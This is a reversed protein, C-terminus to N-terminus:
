PHQLFFFAHRPGRERQRPNPACVIPGAAALDRGDLNHCSSVAQAARDCHATVVRALLTPRVNHEAPKLPPECRPRLSHARCRQAHGLPQQAANTPERLLPMPMRREELQCVGSQHTMARQPRCCATPHLWDNHKAAAVRRATPARKRDPRSDAGLGFSLTMWHHQAPPHALFTTPCGRLCWLKTPPGLGVSPRVLLGVSPRVFKPLLMTQLERDTM